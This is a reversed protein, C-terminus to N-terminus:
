HGGAFRTRHNADDLPALLGATLLDRRIQDSAINKANVSRGRDEVVAVDRDNLVLVAHISAQVAVLHQRQEVRQGDWGHDHQV